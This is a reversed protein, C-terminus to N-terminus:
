FVIFIYIPLIIKLYLHFTYINSQNVNQFFFPLTYEYDHVLELLGMGMLEWQKSHSLPRLSKSEM